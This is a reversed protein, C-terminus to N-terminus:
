ALESSRRQQGTPKDARIFASAFAGDLAGIAEAISVGAPLSGTPIQEALEVLDAHSYTRTVQITPNDFGAAALKGLYDSGLLAGAICGTWLGVLSSWQSALPRLLVIDSVAFRGGPRLVRFAEQLAADKDTSLNIVCNSIVVDVSASALPIAEIAGKVFRANTIGAEARHREALQLMEDTMDLGYATGGPAVRRASLLVDLGGGSGLDLVDQGPRLDILATPNGCGLSAAVAGESPAEGIDYLGSTIPDAAGDGRGSPGCCGGGALGLAAQAAAAYRQRVAEKLDAQEVM